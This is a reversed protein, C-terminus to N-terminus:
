QSSPQVVIFVDDTDFLEIKWEYDGFIGFLKPESQANHKIVKVGKGVSVSLTGNINAGISKLQDIEKKNFQLLKTTIKISGDQQPIISFFNMERSLFDYHERDVGSKEVLVKYRGDGLYSVEKFGEEQRLENELEALHAEDKKTLAGKKSAALASAYTLIGDYAFTYSGDENVKVNVEFKEPIFCGALLLTISTAIVLLFTRFKKM